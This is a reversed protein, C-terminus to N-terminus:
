GNIGRFLEAIAEESWTEGADRERLLAFAPADSRIRNFKKLNMVFEEGEDCQNVYPCWGCLPSPKAKFETTLSERIIEVSQDLYKMVKKMNSETVDAGIVMRGKIYYLECRDTDIGMQSLAWSYLLLQFLKDRMYQQKPVKGFKYDGVVLGTPHEHLRDVFGIFPIGEYEASVQMEVSHVKIKTPDEMDWLKIMNNWIDFKLHGQEEEEMLEGELHERAYLDMFDQWESTAISRLAEVDRDPADLEYFREYCGHVFTGISAAPGAKDPVKDIYYLKWRKPCSLKDLGSPSLRINPREASIDSVGLSYM